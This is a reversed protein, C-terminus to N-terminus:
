KKVLVHCFETGSTSNTTIKGFLCISCCRVKANVAQHSYAVATLTFVHSNNTVRKSSVELNAMKVCTELMIWSSSGQTSAAIREPGPQLRRLVINSHRM